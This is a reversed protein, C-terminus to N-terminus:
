RELSGIEVERASPQTSSIALARMALFCRMRQDGRPACQTAVTRAATNSPRSLGAASRRRAAQFVLNKRERAHDWVEDGSFREGGDMWCVVSLEGLVKLLKRVFTGIRFVAVDEEACRAEPMFPLVLEFRNVTNFHPCNIDSSTRRGKWDLVTAEAAALGTTGAITAAPPSFAARQYRSNKAVISFEFVRM